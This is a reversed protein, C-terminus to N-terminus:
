IMQIKELACLKRGADQHMASKVGATLSYSVFSRIGM